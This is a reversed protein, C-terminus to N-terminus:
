CSSDDYCELTIKEEQWKVNQNFSGLRHSEASFLAEAANINSSRSSVYTVITADGQKVIPDERSESRPSFKAAFAIKTTDFATQPITQIWTGSTGIPLSM